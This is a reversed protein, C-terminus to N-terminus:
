CLEIDNPHNTVIQPVGRFSRIEGGVAIDKGEYTDEPPRRFNSRDDGFIVVGFRDKAPFPRGLDLYTPKSRTERAFAARVVKGRM